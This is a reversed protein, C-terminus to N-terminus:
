PAPGRDPGARAGPAPRTRGAAGPAVRPRLRGALGAGGPEDARCQAFRRELLAPVKPLLAQERAALVQAMVADLAAVQRLQPSVRSLAQRVHERLPQIMQEM